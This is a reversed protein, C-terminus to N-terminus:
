RGRASGHSHWAIREHNALAMGVDQADRAGVGHLLEVDGRTYAHCVADFDASRKRGPVPQDHAAPLAQRGALGDPDDIRHMAACLCMRASMGVQQM